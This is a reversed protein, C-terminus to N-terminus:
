RNLFEVVKPGMPAACQTPALHGCNAFVEIESQPILKHMAMGQELPTIRDKDGWVILVPMKLEQLANDMTDRGALMSDLARRVVWANKRSSRILDAAVFGPVKPPVPMLLADLSDLQEPNEPMFLDTNWEPKAYLGAADFLMLKKAREPHDVAMREAIWGGMSWGGLDAQKLQMADEFQEVVAAQDPISYSFSAPQESRGFGPLDPLYVRYGAQALYPALNVWDEARGGLGHVLVVPAGHEPGLADYHIRYGAAVVTRSDYGALRMRLYLFERALEVPRLWFAMGGAIAVVAVAAAVRVLIRFLRM